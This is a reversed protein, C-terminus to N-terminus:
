IYQLLSSEDDLRIISVAEPPLPQRVDISNTNFREFNTGLWFNNSHNDDLIGIAIHQELPAGFLRM